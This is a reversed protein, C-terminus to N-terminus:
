VPLLEYPHRRVCNVITNAYMLLLMGTLIGYCSMDILDTM